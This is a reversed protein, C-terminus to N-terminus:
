VGGGKGVENRWERGSGEECAHMVTVLTEEEGVWSGPLCPCSCGFVHHDHGCRAVLLAFAESPRGGRKGSLLELQAEM